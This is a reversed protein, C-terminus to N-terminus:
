RDVGTNGAKEKLARLCDQVIQQRLLRLKEGDLAPATKAASSITTKIILERIEVPM